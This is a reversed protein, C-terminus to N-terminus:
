LLIGEKVAERVMTRQNKKEEYEEPTYPLVDIDKDLPWNKVVEEIRKHWKMDKFKESVIILDYDSYLREDGRARSGFLIIKQPTFEKRTQALFPAFGKEVQPTQRTHM